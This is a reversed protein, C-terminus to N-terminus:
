WTLQKFSENMIVQNAVGEVDSKLFDLVVKSTNVLLRHNNLLLARLIWGLYFAKSITAPEQSVSNLTKEVLDDVSTLKNM